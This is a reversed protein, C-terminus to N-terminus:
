ARFRLFGFAFSLAPGKERFYTVADRSSFGFEWTGHEGVIFTVGVPINVRTSYNGGHAVGASLRLFKLVKFDGGLAWYPKYLQGPQKNMPIVFDVGIEAKDEFQQSAGLRLLTPLTTKVKHKGEWKFFGQSSIIKDSEHIINYSDFGNSKMNYLTTDQISYVNGDWSISGLNTLAVGVKIKEKYYLNFGFDAGIGNGVPKYRDTTDASPNTKTASGFDVGLFPSFAGVSTLTNKTFDINMMAYGQLYKVSVGGALAFFDNIKFEKGYSLSYERYYLFSMRTGGFIQSYLQANSPIRFGQSIGISDAKHYNSPNNAVTQGNNLQLSDFYSAKYGLFLFESFNKNFTSYWRGTERINFAFGGIKDNQYSIGFWNIDANLALPANVFQSAAKLKDQYTFTSSGFDTISKRFDKKSLADSFASVGVEMLGFTVHKNEYLRKFGLNAPNIGVSHYDTEFTTAVGRGTSTFVSYETQASLTLVSFLSVVLPLIKKM